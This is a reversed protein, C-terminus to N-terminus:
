SVLSKLETQYQSVLEEEEVLVAMALSIWDILNILDNKQLQEPEKNLHGRIQRVIFRDAAPGLYVYSVEVVKKYLDNDTRSSM